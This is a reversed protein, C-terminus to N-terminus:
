KKSIIFYKLLFEQDNIAPVMVGAKQYCRHFVYSGLIYNESSGNRLKKDKVLLLLRSSIIYRSLLPISGGLSVMRTNHRIETEWEIGWFFLIM